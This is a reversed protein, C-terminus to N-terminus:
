ILPGARLRFVQDLSPREGSGNTMLFLIVAGTILAIGLAVALPSRASQGWAAVLFGLGLIALYPLLDSVTTAQALVAPDLLV